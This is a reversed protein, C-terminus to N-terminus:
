LKRGISREITDELTSSHTGSYRYFLNAKPWLNYHTLQHQKQLRSVQASAQTIQPHANVALAQGEGQALCQTLLAMSPMAQLNITYGVQLQTSLRGLLLQLDGQVKLLQGQRQYRDLQASSVESQTVRGALLLNQAVQM